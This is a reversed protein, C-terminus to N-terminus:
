VGVFIKTTGYSKGVFPFGSNTTSVTGTYSVYYRSGLTLGSQNTNMNAFMSVGVLDGSNASSTSLGIFSQATTSYGDPTFVITTYRGTSSNVTVCLIVNSVTNYALAPSTGSDIPNYINNASGAVVTGNINVVATYSKCYGTNGDNWVICINAGATNAQIAIPRSASYNSGLPYIGGLVFAGNLEQGCRVLMASNTNSTQFAVAIGYGATISGFFTVAAFCNTGSFSSLQTPAGVSVTSATTTITYLYPYTAGSVTSVGALAYTGTAPNCAISYGLFSTINVSTPPYYLENITTGSISLLWLGTYNNTNDSALVLFNGAIPNYVINNTYTYGASNTLTKETGSSIATGSVTLVKARQTNSITYLVIFKSNTTDYAVSLSTVATTVIQYESGFTITTGSITGVYGMLYSSYSILVIVKQNVPDYASAVYTGGRTNPLNGSTGASFATTTGSIQSVTGDSNLAVSVGAASISGSATFTPSTSVTSWTPASAGASTLVQGSTGAATYAHATGTGYGVGGATPTATSNTGGNAIPLTGTVNTTLNVGTGSIGGTLTTTGTVSLNGTDTIGPTTIGTTGDIVVAM